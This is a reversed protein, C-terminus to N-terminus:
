SRSRACTSASMRGARGSTCCRTASSRVPGMTPSTAAAIPQPKPTLINDDKAGRGLTLVPPHELLLLTDPVVNARRAEQFQRQLELGDRYEVRGLRHWQVPPNM